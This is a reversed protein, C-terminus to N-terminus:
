FNENNNRETQTIPLFERTSLSSAVANKSGGFSLNRRGERYRNIRVQDIAMLDVANYRNRRVTCEPLREMLANELARDRRPYSGFEGFGFDTTERATDYLDFNRFAGDTALDSVDSTDARYGSNRNVEIMLMGNAQLALDGHIALTGPSSGPSITGGDNNVDGGISGIGSVTGQQIVVTGGGVEM